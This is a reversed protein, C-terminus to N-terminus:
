NLIWKKLIRILDDVVFPKVLFDNMGAQICMERDGAVNSATLAIVPKNQMAPQQRIHKCAEIGDMEPMQVDLLVVDPVVRGCAEIAEYGNSAEHITSAPLLRQILTRTFIKNIPNDEVILVQLKLGSLLDEKPAEAAPAPQSKPQVGSISSFLDYARIPKLIYSNIDLMQSNLLFQEVDPMTCLLVIKLEKGNRGGHERLHRILEIGNMGPMLYNIFAVDYGNNEVLAIAEGGEAAEVTNISKANLMQAITKRSGANADVILASRIDPQKIQQLLTKGETAVPLVFSFSSGIGPESSLQLQSHMMKLLLNSITLGLGTGGYKKTTSPDAQSFSDFIKDCHEKKIGIGTDRVEFLIDMMGSDYIRVPKVNIAIEGEATFKVANSLLNTLVQKVRLGDIFIYEPLRFSVNMLIELGKQQSQFAVLNVTECILEHLDTKEPYLDLKGSEIKSFDLIDDIISLLVKASQNITSGYQSQIVNLPTKVLLDTFGIIGNLPTRIEHSMNALFDSKALSAQEAQLKARKLEIQQLVSETIDRGIAILHGSPEEVTITWEVTRYEKNLFQIRHSFHIHDKNTIGNEFFHVTAQRDDLHVFHFFSFQDLPEGGTLSQRFAPNARLIVGSRNFMCVFDSSITFLREFQEAENKKKYNKILSTASHALLLFTNTEEPTLKRPEYGVICFTGLVFGEDDIIPYGAYFRVGQDMQVMPHASFREDKTTDEVELMETQLMTYNCFSLERSVENIPLGIKSKYWQRDKDMLSIIAIPVKFISVTLQTIHDFEEEPLTDLLNYCQVAQLRREERILDTTM